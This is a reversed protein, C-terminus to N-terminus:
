RTVGPLALPLPAAGPMWGCRIHSLRGVMATSGNRSSPLSAPGYKPSPMVSSIMVESDIFRESNTIARLEVSFYRPWRELAASM